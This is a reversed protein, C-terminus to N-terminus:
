KIKKPRVKLLILYSILSIIALIFIYPLATVAYIFLGEAGKLINNIAGYFGKYAKTWITPINLTELKGAKIEKLSVYLSSLSVQKDWRKIDTSMLDIDSRVRNLENEIKLIEEVNKAMGVLERLRNEQVKLNEVRTTTDYYQETIDVSNTNHNIVEGMTKIEEVTSSFKAAPIRLTISGTKLKDSKGEAGYYVNNDVNSNEVYGGNREALEEISKMKDDFDTVELSVNGSTIIKREVSQQESEKAKDLAVTNSKLAYNSAMDATPIELNESFKVAGRDYEAPAEGAMQVKAEPAAGYGTSEESVAKDNINFGPLRDLSSIGIVAIVFVAAVGAMWSWNRNFFSKKKNDSGLEQLRQMLDHHFTGPLEIEELENCYQVASLLLRYEEMCDPCSGLHKELEIKDIENIDKDIYSSMLSTVLECDM